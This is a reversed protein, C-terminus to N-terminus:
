IKKSTDNNLYLNNDKIFFDYNKLDKPFSNIEYNRVNTKVNYTECKGTTPCFHWDHWKCRLLKKKKCYYIEGGFHPCISSKVMLKEGHYYVIIEDKIEEVFKVFFNKFSKLDCIFISNNNKM